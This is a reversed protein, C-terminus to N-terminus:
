LGRGPPNTGSGEWRPFLLPWYVALDAPLPPRLPFSRLEYDLNGANTGVLSTFSFGQTDSLNSIENKKISHSYLGAEALGLFFRTAMLGAFNIVFGM